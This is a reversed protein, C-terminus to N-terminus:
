KWEDLTLARMISVWSDPKLRIVETTYSWCINECRVHVTLYIRVMRPTYRGSLNHAHGITFWAKHWASKPESKGDMFKNRLFECPKPFAKEALERTISTWINGYFKLPLPLPEPNM